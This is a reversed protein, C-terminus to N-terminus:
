QPRGTRLPLADLMRAAEDLQAPTMQAQLGAARCAADVAARPMRGNEDLQSARVIEDVYSRVLGEAILDDQRRKVEAIQEPTSDVLLTLRSTAVAEDDGGRRAVWVLDGIREGIEVLTHGDLLVARGPALGPGAVSAAPTFEPGAQHRQGPPLAFWAEYRECRKRWMAVSRGASANDSMAATLASRCAALEQRAETLGECAIRNSERSETLAREPNAGRRVAAVIQPLTGDVGAAELYSARVSEYNDARQGQEIEQLEAKSQALFRRAESTFSDRDAEHGRTPDAAFLACWEDLPVFKRGEERSEGGPLWAWWGHAEQSLREMAQTRRDPRGALVRRWLIYELDIRWGAAYDDESITNMLQLLEDAPLMGPM